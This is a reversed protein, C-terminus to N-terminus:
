VRDKRKPVPPLKKELHEKYGIKGDEQMIPEKVVSDTAYQRYWTSGDVAKVTSYDGDPPMYQDTNYMAMQLGNPNDASFETATIRGGGIEANSYTPPDEMETHGFYSPISKAATDGSITGAENIKGKAIAGIVDNAMNGGKNLSSQFMKGSIGGSGQGTANKMASRSMQRGVAGSLGGSLFGTQTSSSSNHSSGHFRGGGGGRAASIGRAAIMAEAMMSGGTHGVNIGLSSMFSDIKQSVKLFAVACLFWIFVNGSVAEKSSSAIANEVEEESIAAFAPLAFAMVLLAVFAICILVKKPKLM